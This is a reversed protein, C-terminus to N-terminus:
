THTANARRPRDGRAARPRHQRIHVLRRSQSPGNNGGGPRDSGSAYSRMCVLPRVAAFVHYAGPAVGKISFTYQGAVIEASYASAGTTSIAYVLQPAAGNPPPFGASGTIAGSTGSPSVTSAPSAQLSHGAAPTSGDGGCGAWPAVAPSPSTRESPSSGAAPSGQATGASSGCASALLTALFLIQAKKM